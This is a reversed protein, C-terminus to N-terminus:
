EGQIVWSENFHVHKVTKLNYSYSAHLTGDNAQIISPYDFRGGPVHELYRKWKWTKGRDDSISVALRDRPDTENDNYIMALHGNDLLIAEIGADPNPLNTSGLPGWTMGGDASNSRLIRRELRGNRFFATMSGDAFEVVTPQTIGYDPVAQGITWTEGGDGSIAMAAINFNENALPVLVAGDSRVLPHVRPMWGLRLKFADDLRARVRELARERQDADSGRERARRDFSAMLAEEFGNPHVVLVGERSWVPPGPQDYDASVHYQVLASGWADQPVALLTAHVLWLRGQQDVVMCPNNDSVGFTDHMVFPKEWASSGAPKRAGGIRVDDRKDSDGTYHPPPLPPGNEYWVARLDGNPCEVICSAHVHGHWNEVSPDFCFDAEFLPDADAAALALGLLVANLIM